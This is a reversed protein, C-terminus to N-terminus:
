RAAKTDRLRDGDTLSAAGPVIHDGEALGSLIETYGAGQIGVKVPRRVAHGSEVRLVWSQEGSHVGDSPIVLARRHHAVEVDISVTMDQRIFAPPKAVDLKVQVSGTQANVGPNLYVLRADFRQQPFADASALAQQGISLLRLNKEDFDAVLQTGSDPSLTMLVKGPQVVDGAEVDRAILVGAAPARIVAYGSRTRAATLNARATALDSQALQRDSGNTRTALLQSQAANFQALALRAAKEADDVAAESVFHRQRLDLNRSLTAEANDLTAWAQRLAQEAVPVQVEDLQRLRAASQATSAEAAREAAQLEAADLEVLIDGAKVRQGEAVPIRAVVGTIQTGIDVRHPAEVHGSAVVTQVMDQRIALETAIM